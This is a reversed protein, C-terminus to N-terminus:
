SLLLLLSIRFNILEYFAFINFLYSRGASLPHDEMKPTPRPALSEDVYFFSLKTPFTVFHRLIQPGRHIRYHIKPNM